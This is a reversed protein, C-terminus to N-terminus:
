LVVGRINKRPFKLEFTSPDVSPLIVGPSVFNPGEEYFQSFDYQWGYNGDGSPNNGTPYNINYDWLVTLGTDIGPLSRDNSLNSFDQTLEVWSVSRVGDVDMLQYELDSTYIPQHFQMKDINFYDTIVEICKLKVDAKNSSRHAVVEFAVGFNVIKGDQIHVNDSVMKYQSLYNKVNQKLPHTVGGNSGTPLTVLNKNFNYGLVYVDITALAGAGLDSQIANYSNYFNQVKSMSDILGGTMTNGDAVSQSVADYLQEYDAGTLNNDSDFDFNQMLDYTRSGEDNIGSRVAYVKALGGFKPPLSMVRTEYDEKTVCRNQTAFFAKAKKRIEEVSEADSGGFAPEDNTITLNKGSTNGSLTESSILTNLEGVAVNSSVGGGVRYKVILTTNSPTEGLTGRQNQSMPDLPLDLSGTVQDGAITFGITDSNLFENATSLQGNRMVGNGFVLSTTDDDNVQTIFRKSTKIYRLTYPVALNLANGNTTNDEVATNRIGDATFHTDIAVKDQALYDVEYYKAGTNQDEVSIIDIVNTDNLNLKLFQVPAGITFTQTKTKGSIAKVNRTLTYETVIGNDDFTSEIPLINDISSSTTFDVVDLTEFFITSDSDSQVQLGKNLIVADGYNPKKDNIDTTVGVTQTVKLNVYAPITPKVKYGLTKALNIMNRREQALPLFMEKYQQDIYFSLVDGVYASMEILMMGPSTENFDKYSNPFYTKAYEILNAKFTDFDKNLYNINTTKIDKNSYPM